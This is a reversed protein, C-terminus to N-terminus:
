KLNSSRSQDGLGFHSLVLVLEVLLTAQYETLYKHVCVMIVKHLFLKRSIQLVERLVAGDLFTLTKAHFRGDSGTDHTSLGRTAKAVAMALREHDHLNHTGGVVVVEQGPQLMM